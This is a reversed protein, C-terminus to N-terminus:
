GSSEAQCKAYNHNYKELDPNNFKGLISVLSYEVHVLNHHYYHM